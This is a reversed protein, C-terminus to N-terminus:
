AQFEEAFLLYEQENQERESRELVSKIFHEPIKARLETYAQPAIRIDLNTIDKLTGESVDDLTKIIMIVDECYDKAAPHSNALARLKTIASARRGKIPPLEHKAFLREKALRFVDLFDDEVSLGVEEPTAAFIPLAQEISVIRAEGSTDAVTFVAHDGKKGFVVARTLSAADAKRQIRSRHPLELVSKLFSPNEKAQDYVERHTADWSLQEDKAEAKAFEDKFFSTLEEDQTLTPTDSGIVANILQIKLTSIAKIRTEAEGIVTPFCNYIFLQDFVKKNIRNIRGIRQIVRTPNYPIDYNIVVGARHLNYGESLADTAILVDYDNAQRDDPLSADFNERLLDRKEKSSVAATYEFIRSYGRAKFSEALYTVTDAYSSFIVIKRDPNEALLRDIQATLGDLKPDQTAKAPDDFWARHIGELIERDHRVDEIFKPDMIEKSVLLLGRQEKLEELEQDLSSGDEADDLMFEDPDPLLGKKMIPVSGVNEWYSEILRNADIMKELTKRFADKSSEFRMVLLRRMFQALNTQATRLDHEEIDDGLLKLFQEQDKVYLVPKYRAGIFAEPEAPGTIQELTQVYLDFLDGLDYEMLEPGVIDAFEIHQRELDERYRTIHKLDLRSRRIVVTEILRRQETAIEGAERSIEEPSAKALRRRLKKYRDMLERFRLSLNDVSRITSQGPTQFLKILAFVDKPDNNFPTATLLLMKNGPNSRCVQHLLKYDSTDENRYRHAEDLVILLPESSDHYREYVEQMKGSSFVRYGHIKFEEKYEEWQPLLHPPAIIVTRMNLNHAVTSAIISKGLGVVDALIAGDYKELRDITSRVADLQYELDSFRAGTIQSPTKLSGSEENGFLEHLVRVYIDYPKPAAFSWVRSKVNTIFEEKTDKDAVVISSDRWLREFHGLYEQFKAKDRYSDNLEGQGSLGSYTFNSSGMFVTGPADGGQSQDKRNHLLYFKGHDPTLTKHIELTGDEIKSLFLKLITIADKDDFLDSDNIFGTLENIYNQKLATRSSTTSRAQWKTLDEDGGKARRTIEPIMGPELEMGVLVRIHKDKLENALAKFGSFYFFGVSIDVRDTSPLANRLAEQLTQSKNDILPMAKYRSENRGM